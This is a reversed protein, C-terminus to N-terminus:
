KLADLTSKTLSFGTGAMLGGIVPLELCAICQFRLKFKVFPLSVHGHM